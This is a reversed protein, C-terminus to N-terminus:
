PPMTAALSTKLCMPSFSPPQSVTILSSMFSNVGSFRLFYSATIRLLGVAAHKPGELTSISSIGFSSAFAAM